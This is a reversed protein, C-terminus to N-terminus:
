ISNLSLAIGVGVYQWGEKDRGTEPENWPFWIRVPRERSSYLAVRFIISLAIRAVSRAKYMFYTGFTM